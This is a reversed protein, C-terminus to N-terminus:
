LNIETFASLIEAEERMTVGDDGDADMPDSVCSPCEYCGSLVNSEWSGM